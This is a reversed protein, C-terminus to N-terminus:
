AAMSWSASQGQGEPGTEDAARCSADADLAGDSEWLFVEMSM